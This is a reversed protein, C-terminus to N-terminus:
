NKKAQLTSPGQIAGKEPILGLRLWGTGRCPLILNQTLMLGAEGPLILIICDDTMEVQAVCM